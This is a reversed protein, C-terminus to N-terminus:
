LDLGLVFFVILESLFEILDHLFYVFLISCARAHQNGTLKHTDARRFNDIVQADSGSLFPLKCSM